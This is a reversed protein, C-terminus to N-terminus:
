DNKARGTSMPNTSDGIWNAVQDIMFDSLLSNLPMQQLVPTGGMMRVWMQSNRYDRPVVVDAKILNEYDTIDYGGRMDVSNHCKICEQFFPGGPSMLQSYTVTGPAPAADDDLINVRMSTRTGAAAPGNVFGLRLRFSEDGPEHREDPKVFVRVTKSTEGPGFIINRDIVRYDWDYKKVSIPQGDKNNITMRDDEDVAQTTNVDEIAVSVERTFIQQSLNVTFSYTGGENVTQDASTIQVTAGAPQPGLDLNELSKIQLSLVDTSRTVGRAIMAGSSIPTTNFRDQKYRTVDVLYFTTQNDIIQGNIRFALGQLRLDTRANAMDLMPDYIAYYIEGLNDRVEVTVRVRAGSLSYGAPINEPLLDTDLDWTLNIRDGVRAAGIPKSVTRMWQTFDEDVRGDAIAGEGCNRETEIEAEAWRALLDSVAPQNQPGSFPSNHLPDVAYSGVRSFGKLVFANYATQLDSDAFAGNGPGASTHCTACNQKLFPHWTREYYSIMECAKLASDLDAASKQHDSSCSNYFMPVTTFLAILTLTQLLKKIKM